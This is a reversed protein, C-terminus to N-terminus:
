LSFLSDLKMKFCIVGIDELYPFVHGIPTMETKSSAATMVALQGILRYIEKYKQTSKSALVINCLDDTASQKTKIGIILIELKYKAIECILRFPCNNNEQCLTVRSGVECLM